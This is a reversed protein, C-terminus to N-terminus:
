FAHLLSEYATQLIVDELAHDTTLYNTLGVSNNINFFTHLQPRRLDADIMLTNYGSQACVYALNVLTTSKGEGAGGSVITMSNADAAKRNFEINTRLIRYAEADPSLGSQRHLVGVAQPIVALVPLELFHEVEDMSKVSTDLYELFFAMGIGFVLGVTAGLVLHLKINPRAPNGPDAAEAFEHIVM